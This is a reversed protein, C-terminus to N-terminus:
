DLQHLRRNTADLVARAMADHEGALRVIASGSVIEEYPPVVLVASVVAIARDGFRVVSATEIDVRTANGELQRLATLTAQAVLRLTASTAVSGEARGIARSEGSLLVVEVSADLGNKTANVSDVVIRPGSQDTAREDTGHISPAIGDELQVVSIIRRDLDVGFSAMAVSQIDRVLQKAGKDPTALVHVEVPRGGEEVIRTARIEPIRCLEQEIAILDIEAM